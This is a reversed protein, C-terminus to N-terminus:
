SESYSTYIDDGMPAIKAAVAAVYYMGWDAGGIYADTREDVGLRPNSHRLDYVVNKSDHVKPYGYELVRKGHMVTISEDAWLLPYSINKFLSVLFLSCMFCLTLTLFHEQLNKVVHMKRVIEFM